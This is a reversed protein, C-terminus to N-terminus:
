VVVVVDGVIVVDDAVVVVDSVVVVDGHKEASILFIIYVVTFGLNVIHFHRKFPDFNYLCTKRIFMM